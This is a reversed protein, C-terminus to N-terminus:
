LVARVSGDPLDSIEGVRKGSATEFALVSYQRAKAHETTAVVVLGADHSFAVDDIFKPSRYLERPVGVRGDEHLDLCYLPFGNAETPTFAFVTGEESVACRYLAA